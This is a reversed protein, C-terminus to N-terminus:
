HELNWSRMGEVAPEDTLDLRLPTVSICGENVAHFDTGEMSEWVPDQGGIWYYDRGRPDV